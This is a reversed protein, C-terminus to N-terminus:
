GSSAVVEIPCRIGTAGALRGDTTVLAVGLREALAVYWGDYVTLDEELRHQTTSTHRRAEDPFILKGSDSPTSSGARRM